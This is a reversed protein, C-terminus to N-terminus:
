AGNLGHSGGRLTPGHMRPGFGLPVPVGHAGDMGTKGLDPANRDQAAAPQPVEHEGNRRQMGQSRGVGFGREGQQAGLHVRPQQRSPGSRHVPDLHQRRATAHLLARLVRLGHCPELGAHPILGEVERDLQVPASAM